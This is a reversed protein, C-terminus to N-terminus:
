CSVQNVRSKGLVLLLTLWPSPTSVKNKKPITNVGFRARSGSKNSGLDLPEPSSMPPLLLMLMLIVHGLSM